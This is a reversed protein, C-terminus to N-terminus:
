CGAHSSSAGEDRQVLKPFVVGVRLDLAQGEKGGNHREAGLAAKHNLLADLVAINGLAETEHHAYLLAIVILFGLLFIRSDPLLSFFLAVVQLSVIQLMLHVMKRKNQYFM